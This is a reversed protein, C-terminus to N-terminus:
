AGGGDEFRVSCGFTFPDAVLPDGVIGTFIGWGVLTLACAGAVSLSITSIAWGLGRDPKM